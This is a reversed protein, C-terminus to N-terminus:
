IALYIAGDEIRATYTAVRVRQPDHTATGDACNFEWNHWPCRVMSRENASNYQGVAVAVRRCSLVGTSLKAGQHPCLDRLAYVTNGNRVFLVDRGEVQFARMEGDPLDEV